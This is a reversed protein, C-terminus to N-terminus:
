YSSRSKPKLNSILKQQNKEELYQQKKEYLNYKKRADKDVLVYKDIFAAAIKNNRLQWRVDNIDDIKTGEKLAYTRSNLVVETNTSKNETFGDAMVATEINEFSRIQMYSFRSHSQVIYCNTKQTVNTVQYPNEKVDSKTFMSHAVYYTTKPNEIKQLPFTKTQEGLNLNQFQLNFNQTM